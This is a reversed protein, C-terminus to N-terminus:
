SYSESYLSDIGVGLNSVKHGKDDIHPILFRVVLSGETAGLLGPLRSKVGFICVLLWPQRNQPVCEM